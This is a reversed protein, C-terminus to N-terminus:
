LQTIFQAVLPDAASFMFSSLQSRAFNALTHSVCNHARPVHYIGLVLLSYFLFFSHLLMNRLFWPIPNIGKAINVIELCDSYIDICPLQLFQLGELLPNTEAMLPSSAKSYTSGLWLQVPDELM